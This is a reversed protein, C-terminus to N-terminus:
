KVIVKKITKYFPGLSKKVLSLFFWKCYEKDRYRKDSVIRNVDTLSTNNHIVYRGWVTLGNSVIQTTTPISTYIDTIGAKRACEYVMKSGNGNPISAVHVPQGIIESLIKISTRWEDEIEKKSEKSINVPHTHTHSGLVHGRSYLELVQRETLFGPNGLYQTTIFFVGRHGYKELIPAAITLFSEGGDDFTFIVDNETLQRVQEEFDKDLVKYQFASQNQFGSTEDSNTVIDHYMLNIRGNAM